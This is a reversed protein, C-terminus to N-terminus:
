KEFLLSFISRQAPVSVLDSSDLKTTPSREQGEAGRKVLVQESCLRNIVTGIMDKPAPTENGFMAYLDEFSTPGARTEVLRRPIDTLLAHVTREAASKDFDFRQQVGEPPRSPDFGLMMGLGPGGFHEFHNQESWHIAKVVDNARANNALHLFWYSRNSENSRIFFPTYFRAGARTAFTDHLVKQIGAMGANRIQDEMAPLDNIDSVRLAQSIRALQTEPRNAYAGIWDYAFTLFIEANQLETMIKVLMAIPVDSYGYQDLVFIARPHRAAQTRVPRTKITHIIKDLHQEFAGELMEVDHEIIRREIRRPLADRLYRFTAPEKEVFIFKAAVTIPKTRGANIMAEAAQVAEILIFPSGYHINNTGTVRYEGGGAFGDILTVPLTDMKRNLTVIRIYEEVYRRLIRHKALSHPAIASPEGHEWSYKSM